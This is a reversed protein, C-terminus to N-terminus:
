ARVLRWEGRHLLSFVLSFRQEHHKVPIPSTTNTGISEFSNFNDSAGGDASFRLPLLDEITLDRGTVESLDNSHLVTPRRM